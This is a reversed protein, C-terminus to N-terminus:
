SEVLTGTTQTVTASSSTVSDPLEIEQTRAGELISGPPLDLAYHVTARGPALEIHRIFSALWAAFDQVTHEILLFDPDAALRRIEQDSPFNDAEQGTAERYMHDLGDSVSHFTVNTVVAATIQPLSLRNLEEARYSHGCPGHCAYRPEPGKTLSFKERCQACVLLNDTPFARTATTM